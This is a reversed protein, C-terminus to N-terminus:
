WLMFEARCGQSVWVHEADWGWNKDALCTARSLQRVLEVRTVGGIKCEKRQGDISECRLPRGMTATQSAADDSGFLRRLFQGSRRSVTEVEFEAGCGRAVWIGNEDYGWSEGLECDMRSLQRTLRVSGAIEIACHEMGHGRSECRLSRKRTTGEDTSEAEEDGERGFEARCGRAVWLGEADVGWSNNRICANRSLQRLLMVDGKGEPLGCHQWRGDKSECRVRSVPAADAPLSWSALAIVGAFATTTCAFTLTTCTGMPRIYRLWMFMQLFRNFYEPERSILPWFM